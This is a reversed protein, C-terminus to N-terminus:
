LRLKVHLLYSGEKFLKREIIMGYKIEVSLAMLSLTVSDRRFACVHSLQTSDCVQSMKSEQHNEQELQVTCFATPVLCVCFPPILIMLGVCLSSWLLMGPFILAAAEKSVPWPTTSAQELMPLISGSAFYNKKKHGHTPTLEAKPVKRPPSADSSCSCCFMHCCSFACPFVPPIHPSVHFVPHM